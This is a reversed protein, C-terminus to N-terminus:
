RGLRGREWQVQCYRVPAMRVPAQWREVQSGRLTAPRYLHRDVHQRAGDPAYAADVAAGEHPLRAYHVSWRGPRVSDGVGDRLDSVGSGRGASVSDSRRGDHGRRQGPSGGFFPVLCAYLLFSFVLAEIVQGVRGSTQRVVIANLVASSVFGPVLLLFLTLTETTLRM